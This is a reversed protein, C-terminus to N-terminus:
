ADMFLEDFSKFKDLSITENKDYSWYIPLDNYMSAVLSFTSKVGMIYDCASLAYLDEIENGNTFEIDIGTEKRYKNIDLKKDNTCIFVVIRKDPFLATFEKIWRIYVEDEFYLAGNSWTAYDGRRIHLGLSIDHEEKREAIYPKIKRIYKDKIAFKSKIDEKYKIFLDPFRCEWGDLVIDKNQKLRDIFEKTMDERKDICRYDILRLKLMFKAYLYTIPTHRKQNCLSFYRYKYAFRMSAANMNNERAWSYIHAYQLINNCMQGYGKVYIM